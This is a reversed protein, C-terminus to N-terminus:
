LTIEKTKSGYTLEAKNDCTGDGYDIIASEKLHSSNIELVGEKIYRCGLQFRLATTVTIEYDKDQATVGSASGTLTYVNDTLVFPTSMGEVQTRQRTSEWTLQGGNEFKITLDSVIDFVYQASRTAKRAGIVENDNVFYNETKADVVTGVDFYNGDFEIIM